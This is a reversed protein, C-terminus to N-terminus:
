SNPSSRLMQFCASMSFSMTAVHTVNEIERFVHLLSAGDLVQQRSVGSLDMELTYTIM